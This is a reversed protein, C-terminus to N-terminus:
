IYSSDRTKTNYGLLRIIKSPIMRVFKLGYEVVLILKFYFIPCFREHAVRFISWIKQSHVLVHASKGGMGAICGKHFYGWPLYSRLEILDILVPIFEKGKLLINFCFYFMIFFLDTTSSEFNLFNTHKLLSWNKHFLVFLCQLALRGNKKHIIKYLYEM